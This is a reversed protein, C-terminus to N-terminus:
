FSETNQKFIAVFPSRWGVYLAFVMSIRAAQLNNLAVFSKSSRFDPCDKLRKPSFNASSDYISVM